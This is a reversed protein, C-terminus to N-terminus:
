LKFPVGVFKEMPLGRNIHRIRLEAAIFDAQTRPFCLRPDKTPPTLPESFWGYEMNVTPPRFTYIDTPLLITRRAILDVYDQRVESLPIVEHKAYFKGTPPITRAIPVFKEQLKIYKKETEFVETYFRLKIPNM